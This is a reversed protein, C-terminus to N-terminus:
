SGGDDPTNIDPQGQNPAAESTDPSQGGGADPAQYQSEPSGQCASLLAAALVALLITRM